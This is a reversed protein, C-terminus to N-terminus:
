REILTKPMIINKERYKIGQIILSCKENIEEKSKNADLLYDFDELIYKLGAQQKINDTVNMHALAEEYTMGQREIMRQIRTNYDANLVINILEIGKAGRIISFCKNSFIGDVLIYRNNHMMSLLRNKFCPLLQNEYSAFGEERIWDKAYLYKSRDVCEKHILGFKMIDCDHLRSIRDVLTSKGACSYGSITIIKKSM